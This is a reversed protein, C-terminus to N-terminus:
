YQFLLTILLRVGIYICTIQHTYQTIRGECSNSDKYINDLM